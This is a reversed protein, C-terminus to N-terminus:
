YEIVTRISLTTLSARTTAVLYTAGWPTNLESDPQWSPTRTTPITSSYDTPDLGAPPTWLWWLSYLRQQVIILHCKWSQQPLLTKRTPEM